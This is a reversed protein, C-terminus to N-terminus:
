HITFDVNVAINFLSLLLMEVCVIHFSRLPNPSLLQTAKLFGSILSAFSFFVAETQQPPYLNSEPAISFFTMHDSSDLNVRNWLSPRMLTLLSASSTICGDHRIGLTCAQSPLTIIQPPKLQDPRPEAIFILDASQRSINFSWTKEFFNWSSLAM